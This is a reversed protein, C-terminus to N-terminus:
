SLPDMLKIGIILILTFILEDNVCFSFTGITRNKSMLNFEYLKENVLVM